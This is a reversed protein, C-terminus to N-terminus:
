ATGDAGRPAYTTREVGIAIKGFSVKGISRIEIISPAVDLAHRDANAKATAIAVQNLGVYSSQM